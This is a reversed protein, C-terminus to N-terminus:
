FMVDLRLLYSTPTPTGWNRLSSTNSVASQVESDYQKGAASWIWPNNVQASVKLRELKLFQAYKKPLTYSLSINRLRVFDGSAVNGTSRIYMGGLSGVNVISIGPEYYILAKPVASGTNDPRWAKGIWDENGDTLNFGFSPLYMKHGGYYLFLASLEFGKYRVNQTFSANVLPTKSGMYVVDETGMSTSGDLTLTGNSNFHHMTTGDARYIIPVGNQFDTGGSTLGGYQYAYMADFPKGDVLYGSIALHSAQTPNYYAKTVTNKNYSLILTSTLTLDNQRYWPSSLTLEFGKNAMAGSNVRQTTYGSTFHVEKTGLLDESEKYYLDLKGNLVGKFLAYDFGANYSTTKEWRLLPNPASTISAYPISQATYTSQNALSAVLYPTTTQDVNGTLGYSFRFDLVDIWYTKRLFDEKAINWKVGASWLPRYRYKPDSGFLNTQDVRVSGSIGYKGKYTYGGAAYAGVYRNMYTSLAPKLADEGLRVASGGVVAGPLGTNNNYIYSQQYGVTYIDYNNLLTYTLATPDYGYFVSSTPIEASIEKLEVGATATFQHDNGLSKNFDLQNRWVWNNTSNQETEMRGGAPIVSNIAANTAFRNRLFRYYYSNKSRYDETKDKSFEYEGSTSFKLDRTINFNFRAFSRVNFNNETILNDNLEDLINFRFSEFQPLGQISKLVKPNTHFGGQMGTIDVYDRYVKNGNQDLIATYPELQTINAYASNVSVRRNYQVDAGIEFSLWKNLSQLSKIYGKVSQNTNYKNQQGNDIYNLSAYTSQNKASSNVSLNYSQRLPTQWALDMYEQRYDTQRYKSLLADYGTQSLEGNLLQLRAMQVPTYYNIGTTTAQGIGKLSIELNDKESRNAKIADRQSTALEYNIFDSTTAYHLDSLSPNEVWRLDTTFQINTKQQDTFKGGKTTLVIVGNAARVGYISSAAADKLITITEIDNINIDDISRETPLGDIILLPSSGIATSFTSTGRVLPAGKFTSVGAAQGELAETVTNFIRRELQTKGIVEFAGTAREKPLTQYGNSVISIEDLKGSSVELKIIVLDKTAKVERSIHGLYSIVVSAGEDVEHLFFEGKNNTITSNKTGKVSVSAGVLPDGKEADLVIGKVEIAQLKSMLREFFATKREEIIVTKDEITYTLNTGSLLQELAQQLPLQNFRVDVKVAKLKTSKMLVDYGTQKRIEIFVRDIGIDDQKLTIKQGFTTACVQMLSLILIFVTLKMALLFNRIRATLRARFIKTYNKYM